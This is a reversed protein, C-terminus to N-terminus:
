HIRQDRIDYTFYIMSYLNMYYIFVHLVYIYQVNCTIIIKETSTSKINFNFYSILHIFLM